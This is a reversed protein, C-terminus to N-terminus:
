QKVAQYANKLSCCQKVGRVWVAYGNIDYCFFSKAPIRECITAIKYKTYPLIEISDGRIVLYEEEELETEGEVFDVWEMEFKM